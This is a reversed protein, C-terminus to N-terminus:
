LIWYWALPASSGGISISKEGGHRRMEITDPRSSASLTFSGFSREDGSARWISTSRHVWCLTLQGGGCVGARRSSLSTPSNRSSCHTLGVNMQSWGCSMLGSAFHCREKGSMVSRKSSNTFLFSTQLAYVSSLSGMRCRSSKLSWALAFASPSSSAMNISSFKQVASSYPSAGVPPQPMPMSRMAISRVSVCVILSTSSNGAIFGSSCCALM